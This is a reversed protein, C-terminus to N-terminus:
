VCIDYIIHLRTKSRYKINMLVTNFDYALSDLKSNDVAIM